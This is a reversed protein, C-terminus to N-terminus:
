HFTGSWFCVSFLRRIAICLTSFIQQYLFVLLTAQTRQEGIEGRSDVIIHHCRTIRCSLSVNVFISSDVMVILSFVVNEILLGGASELDELLFSSCSIMPDNRHLPKSKYIFELVDECLREGSYEAFRM